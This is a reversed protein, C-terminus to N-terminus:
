VPGSLQSYQSTHPIYNGVIVRMSVWAANDGAVETLAVELGAVIDVKVSTMVVVEVLVESFGAVVVEVAIKVVADICADTAMHEPVESAIGAEDYRPATEMVWDPFRHM